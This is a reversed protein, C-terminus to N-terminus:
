GERGEKTANFREADLYPPPTPTPRKPPEEAPKKSIIAPMHVGNFARTEVALFICISVVVVSSLTIPIWRPSAFISTLSWAPRNWNSTHWAPTKM